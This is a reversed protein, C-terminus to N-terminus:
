PASLRSNPPRAVYKAMEVYSKFVVNTGATLVVNASPRESRLKVERALAVQHAGLRGDNPLYQLGLSVKGYAEALEHFTIVWMPIPNGTELNIWRASPNVVVLSDFGEPPLECGLKKGRPRRPNIRSDFGSDLNVTSNVTVVGGHTNSSGGVEFRYRHSDRVIQILLLLGENASIYERAQVPAEFQHRGTIGSALALENTNVEVRGDSDVTLIRANNIGTISQLLGLAADIDGGLWLGGRAKSHAGTIESIALSIPNPLPIDDINTLSLPEWPTPSLSAPLAEPQRVSPPISAPEFVFRTTIYDLSATGPSSSPPTQRSNDETVPRNLAPGSAYGEIGLIPEVTCELARDTGSAPGNVPLGADSRNRILFENVLGRNILDRGHRRAEDISHFAGTLVRTWLGRGPIQAQVCIPREGARRLNQAFRAAMEETPFASVQVTFAANAPNADIKSGATRLQACCDLNIDLCAAGAILIFAFACRKLIM